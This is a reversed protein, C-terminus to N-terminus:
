VCVKDGGGNGEWILPDLLLLLAVSDGIEVDEGVGSSWNSGNDYRLM